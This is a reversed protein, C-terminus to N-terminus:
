SLRELAGVWFSLANVFQAMSEEMSADISPAVLQQLWLSTERPDIVCTAAYASLAGVALSGVQCLWDDRTVGEVPVNVLRSLLVVAGQQTAQLHVRYKDDVVVTLRGPFPQPVLIDHRAAYDVILPHAKPTM